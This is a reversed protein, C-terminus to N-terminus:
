RTKLRKRRYFTDTIETADTLSQSNVHSSADAIDWKSEMDSYLVLMQEHALMTVSKISSLTTKVVQYSDNQYRLVSHRTAVVWSNSNTEVVQTVNSSSKLMTILEFHVNNKQLQIKYSYVYVDDVILHLRNNRIIPQNISGKPPAQLYRSLKLTGNEQAWGTSGTSLFDIRRRQVIRLLNICFVQVEFFIGGSNYIFLFEEGEVAFWASKFRERYIEVVEEDDALTDDMNQELDVIPTMEDSVPEASTLVGFLKLNFGLLSDGPDLIQLWKGSPSLSIITEKTVFRPLRKKAVIASTTGDNYFQYITPPVNYVSSDAIVYWFQRSSLQTGNWFPKTITYLLQMNDLSYLKALLDHKSFVLIQNSSSSSSHNDTNTDTDEMDSTPPIWCFSGIAERTNHRIIFEPPAIRIDFIVVM